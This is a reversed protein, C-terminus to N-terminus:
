KEFSHLVVLLLQNFGDTLLLIVFLDLRKLFNVFCIVFLSYELSNDSIDIRSFIGELFLLKVM